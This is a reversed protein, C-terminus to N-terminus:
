WVEYFSVNLYAKKWKSLLLLRAKLLTKLWLICNFVESRQYPYQQLKILFFLGSVPYFFCISVHFLLFTMSCSFLPNSFCSPFFRVSVLFIGHFRSVRSKIKPTVIKKITDFSCRFVIIYEIHIYSRLRFPGLLVQFSGTFTTCIM